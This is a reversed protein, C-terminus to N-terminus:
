KLLSTNRHRQNEIGMGMIIGAAKGLILLFISSVILTLIISFVPVTIGTWKEHGLVKALWAFFGKESPVIEKKM